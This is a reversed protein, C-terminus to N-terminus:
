GNYVGKVSMKRKINSHRIFDSKHIRIIGEEIIHILEGM